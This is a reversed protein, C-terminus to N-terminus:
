SEKERPMVMAKVFALSLSGPHVQSARSQQDESPIMDCNKQLIKMDTAVLIEGSEM